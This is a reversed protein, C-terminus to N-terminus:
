GSATSRPGPRRLWPTPPPWRRNPPPTGTLRSWHQPWTSSRVPESSWSPPSRPGGRAQPPAQAAVEALQWVATSLTNARISAEDAAPGTMTQASRRASDAAAKARAVADLVRDGPPGLLRVVGPDSNAALRLRMISLVGLALLWAALFWRTAGNFTTAMNSVVWVASAATLAALVTISFRPRHRKAPNRVVVVYWDRRRDFLWMTREGRATGSMDARRDNRQTPAGPRRRGGTRKPTGPNLRRPPRRGLNEPIWGWAAARPTAVAITHAGKESSPSPDPHLHRLYGPRIQPRKTFAATTAVLGLTPPVPESVPITSWRRGDARPWSM